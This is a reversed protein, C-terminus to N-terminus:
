KQIPKKYNKNLIEGDTYFAIFRYGRKKLLSLNEDKNFVHIGLPILFKRSINEIFKLANIFKKSKFNGAVGLSASLDYPGVMFADVTELSVLDRFNDIAERSEIQAIIIKKEKNKLDKLLNKGFLNATNYGVSRKGYPPYNLHQYIKQLEEKTKINSLIIGDFGLDLIKNIYSEEKNSVRCLSIKNKYKLLKIADGVTSFDFMGHEFDITYFDFDNESVLSVIENSGLQFWAGILQKTKLDKRFKTIKNPM